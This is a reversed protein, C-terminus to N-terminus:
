KFVSEENSVVKICKRKARRSPQNSKELWGYVRRDVVEYKTIIWKKVKKNIYKKKCYIWALIINCDTKSGNNPYYVDM